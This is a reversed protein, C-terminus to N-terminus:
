LVFSGRKKLALCSQKKNSKETHFLTAGTKSKFRSNFNNIDNYGEAKVIQKVPNVKKRTPQCEKLITNICL